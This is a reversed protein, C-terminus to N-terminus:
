CYVVLTSTLEVPEASNLAPNLVQNRLQFKSVPIKTRVYNLGQQFQLVQLPCKPVSILFLVSDCNRRFNTLILHRLGGLRLGHYLVTDLDRKNEPFIARIMFIVLDPATFSIGHHHSHNAHNLRKVYYVTLDFM